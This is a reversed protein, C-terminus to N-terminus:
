SDQSESAFRRVILDSRRVSSVYWRALCHAQRELSMDGRKGDAAWRRRLRGTLESLTMAVSVTLNFSEVFGYMPLRFVEDCAATTEPRLGSSENGFLVLMPGDVSVESVLQEAHPSTGYVRMGRARAWAMM